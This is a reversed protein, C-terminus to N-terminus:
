YVLFYRFLKNLTSNIKSLVKTLVLESSAFKVESEALKPVTATSPFISVLFSTPSGYKRDIPRLSSEDYM